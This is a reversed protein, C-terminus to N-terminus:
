KTKKIIKAPVFSEVVPTKVKPQVVLLFAVKWLEAPAEIPKTENFTYEKENANLSVEGYGKKSVFFSMNGGFKPLDSGRQKIHVVKKGCNKCSM